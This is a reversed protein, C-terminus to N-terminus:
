LKNTKRDLGKIRHFFKEIKGIEGKVEYEYIWRSDERKSEVVRVEVLCEEAAKFVRKPEVTTLITETFIIVKSM